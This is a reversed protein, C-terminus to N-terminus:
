AANLSALTREGQMTKPEYGRWYVLAADVDPRQERFAIRLDDPVDWYGSDSVMKRDELFFRILQPHETLGSNDQIYDWQLPTLTGQLASQLEELKDFDLRGTADTAEEFTKYFDDLAKKYPDTIEREEKLNFEM